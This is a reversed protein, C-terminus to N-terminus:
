FTNDDFYKVYFIMRVFLAFDHEEFSRIKASEM